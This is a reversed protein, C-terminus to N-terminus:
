QSGAGQRQLHSAPRFDNLATIVFAFFQVPAGGCLGCFYGQEGDWLQTYKRMRGLTNRIADQLSKNEPSEVDFQSFLLVYPL